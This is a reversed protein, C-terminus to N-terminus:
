LALILERPVLPFMIHSMGNREERQSGPFETHLEASLQLLIEWSEERGIPLESNKM